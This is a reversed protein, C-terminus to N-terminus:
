IEPLRVWGLQLRAVMVEIYDAVKGEM